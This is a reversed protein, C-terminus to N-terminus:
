PRASELLACVMAVVPAATPRGHQWDGGEVGSGAIDIHTYGISPDSHKHSHADLGSAIALFAAPFQHGRPTASSPGNNCNLVDDAKTRPKIFAWDERRLRSIEFPDGWLEGQDSLRQAIGDRRAARNDIAVSYPGVALQAHGTLTALSFLRPNTEEAAQERLHSLCDALVLRGEADTNGIRVRVGAHSTIIEDSVFSDAGVSNRVAGLEAVLKVGKPRLAAVAHVFGAVAAAGGKDRSMGAMHGGTKLDAGGTDYTVGKGALMLTETIPGEGTYTLRVVRARHREVRSAARGVASLLPYDRTLQVPDDVITVEVPLAAFAERCYDAFRPPAMREPDSGGLDRAVRRGGEVAELWSGLEPAVAKSLSTLGLTTVPECDEGLVDRAELPEWLGALAGLAGVAPANVLEPDDPLKGIVILPATAGASRAREVGSRAAEAVRRVDDGDRDLSGVPALVLRGGAIGQAAILQTTDTLGEDVAALAAIPATLPALDLEDFAPAVVVVADFREDTLAATPDPVVVIATM